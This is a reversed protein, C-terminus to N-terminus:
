ADVLINDDRLALGHDHSYLLMEVGHDHKAFDTNAVLLTRHFCNSHLDIHRWLTAASYPRM